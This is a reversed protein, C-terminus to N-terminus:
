PTRDPRRYIGIFWEGWKKTAPDFEYFAQRVSGDRQPTWIGRFPHEIKKGAYSIFGETRMVGGADLKGELRIVSGPSIWLQTWTKRVADYGNFSMGRGGEAGQWNEILGCGSPSLTIENTGQFVGKLDTVRWAGLWFDWQHYEPASCPAPKPAGPPAASQALAAGAVVAMAVFGTLALGFRM